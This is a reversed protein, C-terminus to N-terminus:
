ETSKIMKIMGRKFKNEDTKVIEKLKWVEETSQM